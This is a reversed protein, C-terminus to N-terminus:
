PRRRSMSHDGARRPQVDETWAAPRDACDVQPGDVAVRQGGNARQHQAQPARPTRARRRHRLQEAEVSKWWYGALCVESLLVILHLM